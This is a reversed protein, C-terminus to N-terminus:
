KGFLREWFTGEYDLSVNTISEYLWNTLVKATSLNLEQLRDEGNENKEVSGVTYFTKSLGYTDMKQNTMPMNRQIYDALHEESSVGMAGSKDWKAIVLIANVSKFNRGKRELENFFSFMLSDDEKATNYDTVLIFNLPIDSNLYEEISRHFTGGRRIKMHDEGAMELFTLDIPKVKKSKNNPEFVMDLRTVQNVTTRAPLIGKRINDLFDFLLVEAEKTNPSNRKPRIAGVRANMHYLMSALIVSKGTSANGFFFVFNSDKSSLSSSDSIAVFENTIAYTSTEQVPAIPTLIKKEQLNNDPEM